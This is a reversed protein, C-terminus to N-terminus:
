LKIVGPETTENLFVGVKGTHFSTRSMACSSSSIQPDWPCSYANRYVWVCVLTPLFSIILTFKPICVKENEEKGLKKRQEGRGHRTTVHCSWKLASITWRRRAYPSLHIFVEINTAVQFHVRRKLFKTRLIEYSWLTLIQWCWPISALSTPHHLFFHDAGYVTVRSIAKCVKWRGDIATIIAPLPKNNM